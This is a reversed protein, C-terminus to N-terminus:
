CNKESYLIFTQCVQSMQICSKISNLLCLAGDALITGLVFTASSNFSTIPNEYFETGSEESSEETCSSSLHFPNKTIRPGGLVPLVIM